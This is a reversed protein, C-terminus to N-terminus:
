EFAIAFREAMTAAATRDLPITRVPSTTAGDLCHAPIYPWHASACTQDAIQERSVGFTAATLAATVTVAFVAGLAVARGKTDPKTFM